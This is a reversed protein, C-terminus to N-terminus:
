ASEKAAAELKRIYDAIASQSIRRSKGIKVSALEGSGVMDWVRRPAIRLERAVEGVTLLM